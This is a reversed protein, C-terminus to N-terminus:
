LLVCIKSVPTVAQMSCMKMKERILALFEDPLGVERFIGPIANEVLLIEELIKPCGITNFIYAEAKIEAFLRSYEGLDRSLDTQCIDINTQLFYIYICKIAFKNYPNQERSLLDLLSM